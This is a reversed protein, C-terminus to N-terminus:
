AATRSLWRGLARWDREWRESLRRSRLAAAPHVLPFLAGRGSARPAGAALLIRPAAPDLAHLAHAGLPVLVRPRLWALQRDLYPRCAREAARDFRNGPPRCKVLNLVGFEDPGLGIAAIAADLRRGSRGQFPRGTRDEEAGPAEGVFVIRPSLAGRYVVVHTRSRHLPCRRCHEIERVMARWEALDPRAPPAPPSSALGM